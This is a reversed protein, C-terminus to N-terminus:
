ICKLHPNRIASHPNYVCKFGMRNERVWRLDVPTLSLFCFLGDRIMSGLVFVRGHGHRRAIASRRALTDRTRFFAFRLACRKDYATFGLDCPSFGFCFGSQRQKPFVSM